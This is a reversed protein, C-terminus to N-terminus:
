RLRRVPQVHLRHKMAMAAAAWWIPFLVFASLYITM